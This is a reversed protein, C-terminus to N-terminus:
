ECDFHHHEQTLSYQNTRMGKKMKIEYLGDRQRNLKIKKYDTWHAMTYQSMNWENSM